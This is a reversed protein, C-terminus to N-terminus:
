AMRWSHDVRAVGVDTIDSYITLHAAKPYYDVPVGWDSEIAFDIDYEGPLYTVQDLVLEVTGSESM